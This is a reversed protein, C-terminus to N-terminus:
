FRLEVGLSFTRPAAPTVFRRSEEYEEGLVDEADGFTGFTAYEADFLNRAALVITARTGTAFEVRADAVAYSPLPEALNAEDGRLSQESTMRWSGSVRLRSTVDISAGLKAVHSPVLPLRDGAEVPLEGEVAAPHNPAAVVFPTVFTADLFAYSASWRVRSGAGGDAAVEVGQRRTTGVNAFHGEGRLPGSSIFLLDDESTSRHLAASWSVGATAGRLGAEFTRATVARLPPDSVFANPLRCPDEPDACSLEVPTPTRGGLGANAFASVRPSVAFAAGLSPHLQTFEHEGDLATGIRDDLRMRVHNLRATATVTFRPTPTLVNAAFASLTTSRTQLEVLSEAAVIGTGSTGRDDNLEALESSSAFRAVGGDLSVGAILRNERGGLTGGGDFQLAAGFATQGLATRNNTADLEQGPGVVVPAGSLDLVVDDELCLLGAADPCPEYPSDDGNFTRTRTRRVYATAQAFLADSVARQQTTSLMAVENHTRDPHTFVAARDEDLLAAPAAGNGTLTSRALTLRADAASWRASGFLHTADSPSFDRWGGDRVHAASAFWRTGGTALEGEARGFSGGRVSASTQQAHSRTRMTLAGGLANLGFVPNAGPMVEISEVASSPVTAWSITDGFPENLRVGDQYIALGEPAGLLPSVSFGRFQLDSQLPGGQPDNLEVGATGRALSDAVGADGGPTIRQVNTPFKARDLGIGDIPTVGIVEVSDRHRVEPEDADAAAAFSVCAAVILVPPVRVSEDAQLAPAGERECAPQM